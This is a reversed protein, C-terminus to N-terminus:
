EFQGPLDDGGAAQGLALRQGTFNPASPASAPTVALPARRSRCARSPEEPGRPNAPGPRSAGRAALLRRRQARQSSIDVLCIIRASTQLGGAVIDPRYPLFPVAM